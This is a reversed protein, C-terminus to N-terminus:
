LWSLNRPGAAKKKIKLLQKSVNKAIVDWNYNKTACEQGNKGIQQLEKCRSSWFEITKPFDSVPAILCNQGHTTEIGRMGFETSLVLVAYSFLDFIKVNSGSGMGMPNIALSAKSILEAKVTDDVYGHRIVNKSYKGKPLCNGIVHFTISQPSYGNRCRL